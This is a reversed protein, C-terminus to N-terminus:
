SPDEFSGLADNVAEIMASHIDELADAWKEEVEDETEYELFDEKDLLYDSLDLDGLAGLLAELAEKKELCAEKIPSGEIEIADASEEYQARVAEIAEEAEEKASQLTETAGQPDEKFDELKWEELLDELAEIAAYAESMYSTTLQSRRPPTKSYTTGQRYLTWYWYEDGKEIGAEPRAKRARRVHHVKPM